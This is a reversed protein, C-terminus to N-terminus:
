MFWLVDWLTWDTKSGDGDMVESLCCKPYQSKVMWKEFGLPPSGGTRPNPQRM